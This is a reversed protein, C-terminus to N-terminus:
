SENVWWATVRVEGGLPVADSRAAVQVLIARDHPGIRHRQAVREVCGPDSALAGKAPRERGRPSAMDLVSAQGSREFWVVASQVGGRCERAVDGLMATLAMGLEAFAPDSMAMPSANVSVPVPSPPASTARPGAFLGLFTVVLASFAAAIGMRLDRSADKKARRLLGTLAGDGIVQAPALPGIAAASRRTPTSSPALQIVPAPPQIAPLSLPDLIAPAGISGAKPPAGELSSLIRSEIDEPIACDDALASLAGRAAAALPTDFVGSQPVAPPESEAYEDAFLSSIADSALIKEEVDAPLQCAEGLASLAQEMWPDRADPDRSIM